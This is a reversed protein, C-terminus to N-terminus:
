CLSNDSFTQFRFMEPVYRRIQSRDMERDMGPQWCSGSQRCEPGRQETNLKGLDSFRRTQLSGNKLQM